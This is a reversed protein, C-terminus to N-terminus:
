QLMFDSKTVTAGATEPRSGKSSKQCRNKQKVFITGAALIYFIVQYTDHTVAYM